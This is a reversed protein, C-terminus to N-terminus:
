SHRSYHARTSIYDTFLGCCYNIDLLTHTTSHLHKIPPDALCCPRKAQTPKQYATSCVCWTSLSWLASHRFLIRMLAMHFASIRTLKSNDDNVSILFGLYRLVFEAKDGFSELGKEFICSAVGLEGDKNCHSEILATPFKQWCSPKMTKERVQLRTVGRPRGATRGPEQLYVESHKSITFKVLIIFTCLGSLDMNLGVIRCSKPSPLNRMPMRLRSPHTPQYMEKLFLVQLHSEGSRATTNCESSQRAIFSNSELYYYCQRTKKKLDLLISKRGSWILKGHAWLLRNLLMSLPPLHYISQHGQLLLRPHHHSCHVWIDRYNAFYQRAQIHSPSLDSMIKKAQLPICLWVCMSWLKTWGTRLPRLNLDLKDVNELPIQVAGHYIKCPADM